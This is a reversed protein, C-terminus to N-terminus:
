KKQWIKIEKSGHVWNTAEGRQLVEAFDNWDIGSDRIRKLAASEILRANESSMGMADGIEKLSMGGWEALDLACSHEMDEPNRKQHVLHGRDSVYCWLNYRCGVYVCPRETPCEARTNPRDHDTDISLDIQQELVKLTVTKLSKRLKPM